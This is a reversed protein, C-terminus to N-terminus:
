KEPEDPTPPQTAPSSRDSLTNIYWILANLEHEDSHQPGSLMERYTPPMLGPPFGDLQLREPHLIANKLFAYDAMATTGDALKQPYGALNLWTPGIGKTGDVHHCATCGLSQALHEGVLHPPLNSPEADAPNEASAVPSPPSLLESPGPSVGYGGAAAAAMGVLLVLMPWGMGRVYAQAAYVALLSCLAFGAHVLVHLWLHPLLYTYLSPWMLLLGAAPAMVAPISWWSRERDRLPLRAAWAMALLGAGLAMVAHLLHHAPITTMGHSFLPKAVGILVIVAGVMGIGVLASRKMTRNNNM